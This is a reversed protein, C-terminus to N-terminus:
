NVMYTTTIAQNFGRNGAGAFSAASSNIYVSVSGSSATFLMDAPNAGATIVGNNTIASAALPVFQTRTPQCAAPMGSITLATGGGAGLVSPWYITCQGNVIRYQATGTPSAGGCAYTATFSGTQQVSQLVGNVYYGGGVNITDIGKSLGTANDSWLGGDGSIFWYNASQAANSFIACYDSSNTGGWVRIGISSGVTTSGFVGLAYLATSGPANITVAGLANIQLRDSGSTYMAIATSSLYLLAGGTYPDANTIGSGSGDSYGYLTGGGTANFAFLKSGAAGNVGSLTYGGSPAAIAVNGAANGTITGATGNFGISFHGDGFVLLPTSIGSVAVNLLVDAANATTGVVRLGLQTGAAGAPNIIQAYSSAVGNVTLTTGSSAAITLGAGGITLTAGLTLATVGANLTIASASFIVKNAGLVSLGLQGAGIRYFGTTLENAFGIGPASVTGDQAKFQALMGGNGSRDLSATLVTAIDSMTPNGWGSSSIVTGTVVPNGAPLTYNGSSDRPM